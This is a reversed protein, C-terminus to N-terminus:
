KRKPLFDGNCAIKSNVLTGLKQGMVVKFVSGVANIGADEFPHM